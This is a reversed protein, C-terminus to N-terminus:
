FMQFYLDKVDAPTNLNGNALFAFCDTGKVRGIKEILLNALKIVAESFGHTKLEQELLTKGFEIQREKTLETLDAM